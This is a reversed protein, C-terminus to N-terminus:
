ELIGQAALEAVRDADYGLTGTLIDFTDEGMTPGARRMTAPTRSLVFRSGEMWTTGLNGHPVEVFHNRHRLQPDALAEPSTSVGHAPIARAQLVATVEDPTRSSTWATILQDLEGRRALRDAVGLHGLPAATKGLEACFEQWQRDTECVVAVWADEGACPYVGHPAFRADDNGQRQAVRGNVHYDLLLWSLNHMSAEAQSFDVYQGQGTRDRHALAALVSCLFYRPAVYDTYAGFPGSPPRDPWGCIHFFGSMAAAMTGFGALPSLPGSQGSLCTSAVVLDPREALLEDHGLGLSGMGHPSFADVVVDAWRVLDMMVGQSVPSSLDLALGRKNGNLNNFLGSREPHGENNVFPALTRATDIRHMSEVRIVEAGYDALVRSAAPGAMVWMLDLVKLGALAAGTRPTATRRAARRKSPVSGLVEETHEGLQPARPLAELPTLSPRAIAGPFTVLGLAGQDVKDWYGRAALQPSAAVDAITNVPAILLRRAIAQELLEAKTKAAFFATLVQDRLREYESVPERGDLLMMTYDIWDKDRTAEDCYGEEHVWEMLRASFPGIAAGFLFTVSVHGDACAWMLKVDLGGYLVGGAYRQTRSANLAATLMQSAAIQNAAQQVSVDAHQGLGSHHDREYLAILAAQAAEAAGHLWAQPAPAILLPARDRDGTLSLAGSAALLTLDSAAWRAKPGSQGFPSVSVHVLAPNLAALTQHDLGRMNSSDGVPENEILVDAGAVLQQLRERGARSGLDVVVSKKGRNHAWFPLSGEVEVRDGAFPGIHRAPSGDPPEVLIVEAGLCRLIHGALQARHDTLDLVRYHSLM